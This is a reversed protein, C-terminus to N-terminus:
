KKWISVSENKSYGAVVAINKASDMASGGGLGVVVDCNEEIAKRGGQNVMKVTPNPMVEGYHVVKLGEKELLDIVKKVFGLRDMSKRGTVLLVKKGLKKVETGIIKLSDKGFFLNTEPLFYNFLKMM